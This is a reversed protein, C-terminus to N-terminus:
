PHIDDTITGYVLLLSVLHLLLFIWKSFQKSFTNTKRSHPISCSVNQRYLINSGLKKLDGYIFGIEM